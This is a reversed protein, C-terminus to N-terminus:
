CTEDASGFSVLGGRSPPREVEVAQGDEIPAGPIAM